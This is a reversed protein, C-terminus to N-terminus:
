GRTTPAARFWSTSATARSTCAVSFTRVCHWSGDPMCAHVAPRTAGQGARGQGTRAETRDHGGSYADQGAVAQRKPTSAM